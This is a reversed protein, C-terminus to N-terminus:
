SLLEENTTELVVSSKFYNDFTMVLNKYDGSQMEKVIPAIEEESMRSDRMIRIALGILNNANGDPGDLNVVTEFKEIRKRIM